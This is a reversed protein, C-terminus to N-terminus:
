KKKGLKEHITNIMPAALDEDYKHSQKLIAKLITPDDFDKVIKKAVNMPLRPHKAIATVLPKYKKDTAEDMISGFIHLVVSSTVNDNKLMQMLINPDQTEYAMETLLEDTVYPSKLLRILTEPSKNERFDHRLINANVYSNSKPHNVILESPIKGVLKILGPSTLNPSKLIADVIEPNELDFDTLIEYLDHPGVYKSQLMYKQIEPDPKNRLIRRYDSYGSNTNDIIMKQIEPDTTHASINGIAMGTPDNSLIIKQTDSNRTYPSVSALVDSNAQPHTAIMHLLEENTRAARSNPAASLVRSDVRPHKLLLKLLDPSEMNYAKVLLILPSTDKNKLLMKMLNPDTIHRSMEDVLGPKDGYKTIVERQLTPDKIRKGILEYELVTKVLNEDRLIDMAINEDRNDELIQHVVGASVNPHQLIMRVIKPSPKEKAINNLEESSTNPDSLKQALIEPHMTRWKGSDNYVGPDITYTENGRHPQSLRTELEYAYNKFARPADGYIADLQYLYNGDDNTYPQFTARAVEKGNKDTLYAVVTGNEVELCLYHRNGGTNFNKCSSHEWSQGHSTQGAVGVPSRTTRVSLTNANVNKRTNDNKFAVKLKPDTIASAIRIHKGNHIMMGRNYDAKDIPTDLNQEVARHVDSKSNLDVLPEHIDEIDDGGFFHNTAATAQPTRRKWKAVEAEEDPTLYEIIFEKARM